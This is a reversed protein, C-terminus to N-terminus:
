DQIQQPPPPLHALELPLPLPLTGQLDVAHPGAGAVPQESIISMLAMSHPLIPAPQMHACRPGAHFHPAQHLEVGCQWCETTCELAAKCSRHLALCLVHAAKCTGATSVAWM